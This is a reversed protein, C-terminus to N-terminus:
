EAPEALPQAMAAQVEELAIDGAVAALWVRFRPTDWLQLLAERKEMDAALVVLVEAVVADKEEKTVVGDADLDVSHGLVGELAMRQDVHTVKILDSATQYTEQLATSSCATLGIAMLVALVINSLKM